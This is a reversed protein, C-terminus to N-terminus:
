MIHVQPKFAKNKDTSFLSSKRNFVKVRFNTEPAVVFVVVLLVVKVFVVVVFSLVVYFFCASLWWLSLLLM